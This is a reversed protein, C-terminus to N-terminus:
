TSSGADNTRVSPAITPATNFLHRMPELASRLEKMQSTQMTVQLRREGLKTEWHPDAIAMAARVLRRLEDDGVREGSHSAEPTALAARAIDGINSLATAWASRWRNTVEIHPNECAIKELAERMAEERATM